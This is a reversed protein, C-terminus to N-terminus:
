RREADHSALAAVGEVTVGRPAPPLTDVVRVFRDDSDRRWDSEAFFRFCPANRPTPQFTAVIEPAGAAAARALAVGVMTEEVRRGMARCSLLFDVLRAGAPDFALGILGTLGYDGFRDRVRFTLLEHGPEAAWAWLEAKSLRRTALNMQNTKNFLQAARELNAESLPEVAVVVNLTDLWRAPDGIAALASQRAREDAFMATRARDEPTLYPSDFCRLASLAERFKTPDAPWDPVLIRPIADAVRAREIPSDDIFVASAADLHLEDLVEAINRAKDSWNIRRAAFDARRLQMEPHRDLTELVPAEDNKSVIALQVGRAALAKLARQFDVFAEGVHDHGGLAVGSWGVEGVIGGWLVDDLDLILLRRSRGSVGDLAAVIEEAAVEIVPGAFPCKTAYWLKQSWGRAGTTELWRQADLLFISPSEGIAEALELNMRALLQALGGRRWDTLGKGRDFPPRVWTPVFVTRVGRAFRTLAAGFARAEQVAADSDVEGSAVARAFAESVAEPRTWVVCSWGNGPLGAALAAAVPGPPAIQTEMGPRTTHEIQRVLTDITFDAVFYLRDAPTM